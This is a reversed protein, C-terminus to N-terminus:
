GALAVGARRATNRTSDKKTDTMFWPLWRIIEKNAQKRENRTRPPRMEKRSPVVEHLVWRTENEPNLRGRKSKGKSNSVNKEPFINGCKNGRKEIKKEKKREKENKREKLTDPDSAYMHQASLRVWYSPLANCQRSAECCQSTTNRHRPKKVMSSSDTFIHNLILVSVAHAPHRLTSIFRSLIFFM